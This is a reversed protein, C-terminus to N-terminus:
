QKARYFKAADAATETLPSTATADTWPGTVAPATQLSGASWTVTIKGLSLTATLTPGTTTPPPPVFGAVLARYTAFGGNATDNLAVQTGDAKVTFWVVRSSGGGNEWYIVFPYIGPKTVLIPFLSDATGCLPKPLSRKLAM